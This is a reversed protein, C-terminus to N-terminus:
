KWGSTDTDEDWANDDDSRSALLSQRHAEDALLVHSHKVLYEEVAEKIIWNKGRHLVLAAKDLQESLEPPLRISTTKGYNM